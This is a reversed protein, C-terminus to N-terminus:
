FPNLVVGGSVFAQLAFGFDEEPSKQRLKENMETPESDMM